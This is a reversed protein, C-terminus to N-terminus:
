GARTGQSVPPDLDGRDGGAHEARARYHSRARGGDTVGGGRIRRDMELFRAVSAIAAYIAAVQGPVADAPAKVADALRRAEHRIGSWGPLNDLRMATGAFHEAQRTVRDHLQAVDPQRAAQVDAVGGAVDRALQESHRM